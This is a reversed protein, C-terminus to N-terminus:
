PQTAWKNTALPLLMKTSNSHTLFMFGSLRITTSYVNKDIAIKQFHFVNQPWLTQTMFIFGWIRVEQFIQQYFPATFIKNFNDTQWPIKWYMSLVFGLWLAIFIKTLMLKQGYFPFQFASSEMVLSFVLLRHFITNKKKDNDVM